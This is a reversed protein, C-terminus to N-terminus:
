QRYPQYQGGYYYRGGHLYYDGRYDGPLTDYYGPEHLAVRAHLRPPPPLCSPLLAVFAVSASLLLIKRSHKTISTNM